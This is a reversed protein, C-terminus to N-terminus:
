QGRPVGVARAAILESAFENWQVTSTPAAWPSSPVSSQVSQPKVPQHTCGHVVAGITVALVFSGFSRM